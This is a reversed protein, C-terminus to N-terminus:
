RGASVPTAMAAPSAPLLQHRALALVTKAAISAVLVTIACLVLATWVASAAPRTLEIWHLATTAVAACAFTFSWFGVTFTLRRFRPLLRLQVLCM